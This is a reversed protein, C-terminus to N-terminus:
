SKAGALDFWGLQNLVAVAVMGVWIVMLIVFFLEFASFQYWWPRPGSHWYSGEPDPKGSRHILHAAHAREMATLSRQFVQSFHRHAAFVYLVGLTLLAAVVFVATRAERNDVAAFASVLTVVDLTVVISPTRWMLDNHQRLYEFCERYQTEPQIAVTAGGTRPM